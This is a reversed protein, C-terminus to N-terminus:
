EEGGAHESALRSIEEYRQFACMCIWEHALQAPYSGYYDAVRCVLEYETPSLNVYM